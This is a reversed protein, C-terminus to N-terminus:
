SLSASRVRRRGEALCVVLRPLARHADGDRDLLDSAPPRSLAWLERFGLVGNVRQHYWSALARLADLLEATAEEAPAAASWHAFQGVADFFATADARPDSRTAVPQVGPNTRRFRALRRLTDVAHEPDDLALAAIPDDGADVGVSLRRELWKSLVREFLADAEDGDMVVAGPDIGAPVAHALVVGRCFGHITTAVLRDINELAQTAFARRAPDVCRQPLASSLEPPVEGRALAAIFGWIRAALGRSGGRRVYHGRDLGPPM